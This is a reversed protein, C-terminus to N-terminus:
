SRGRFGIHEDYGGASDSGIITDGSYNRSGGYVTQFVIIRQQAYAPIAISFIVLLAVSVIKNM